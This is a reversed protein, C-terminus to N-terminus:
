SQCSPQDGMQAVWWEWSVVGQDDPMVFERAEAESGVLIMKGAHDALPKGDRDLIVFPM